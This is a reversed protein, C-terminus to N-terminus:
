YPSIFHGSHGQEVGRKNRESLQTRCSRESGPPGCRDTEDGVELRFAGAEKEANRSEHHTSGSNGVAAGIGSSLLLSFRIRDQLHSITDDIMKTEAPSPVPLRCCLVM